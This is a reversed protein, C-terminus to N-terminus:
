GRRLDGMARQQGARPPPNASRHQRPLVAPDAKAGLRVEFRSGRAVASWWRGPSLYKPPERRPTQAAALQVGEGGAV